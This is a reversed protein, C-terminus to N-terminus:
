DAGTGRGGGHKHASPPGKRDDNDQQPLGTSSRSEAEASRGHKPREPSAHHESAGPSLGAEPPTDNWQQQQHTQDMGKTSSLPQNALHENPQPQQQDNGPTRQSDEHTPSTKKEGVPATPGKYTEPM